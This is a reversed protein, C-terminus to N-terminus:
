SLIMPGPIQLKTNSPISSKSNFNFCLPLIVKFDKKFLLALLKKSLNAIELRM